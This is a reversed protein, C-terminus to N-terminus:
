KFKNLASQLFCLFVFIVFIFHALYNKLTTCSGCASSCAHFFITEGLKDRWNTWSPKCKSEGKFVCPKSFATAQNSRDTNCHEHKRLVARQGRKGSEPRGRAGSQWRVISLAEQAASCGPCRAKLRNKSESSDVRWCSSDLTESM